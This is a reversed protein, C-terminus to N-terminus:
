CLGGIPETGYRQAHDVKRAVWARTWGPRNGCWDWLLGEADSPALAFGRVLRCAASLVAVDSGEGITPRPIAALYARARDIVAGTPRAPLTPRAPVADTTTTALWEPCFPPIRDPPDDWQGAERYVVGSAHTSGPAIVYGGDGRVDIKLSGDETTTLRARNPV